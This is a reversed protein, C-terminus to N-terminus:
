GCWTLGNPSGVIGDGGTGTIDDPINLYVPTCAGSVVTNTITSDISGDMNLDFDTRIFDGNQYVYLWSVNTNKSNTPPKSFTFDKQVLVGGSHIYTEDWSSFSDANSVKQLSGDANWSYTSTVPNSSGAFTQVSQIVQNSTNYTFQYNMVSNGAMSLNYQAALGNVYTVVGTLNSTSGASTVVLDARVFQNGNYTYTVNNVSQGNDIDLKFGTLKGNADYTFETDARQTSAVYYPNYIDPTGDGTYTYTIMQIRGDPFYLFDFRADMVGNNDFDMVSESIRKNYPATGGPNSNGPSTDAPASGGGSGGGCATLVIAFLLISAPKFGQISPKFSDKNNTKYLM